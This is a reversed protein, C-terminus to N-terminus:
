PTKNPFVAKEIRTIRALLGPLRQLAASARMAERHPRAPYGSVTAGPAIDGIVGAQAGVRAGSGITVHGQVGAQGGIVAGDEVVTSGSIGVQSVIIVHKGVRCNHGIQVLNDIKTGQGIVTDGISGRDITTNAGIEVDDDIVCGGVHLIKRHGGDMWAYGFGDAGLRAGSHVICRAGIRVGAYLTVQAHLVSGAGVTCGPGVAVHSGIRVDDGLSCGEGVLAYAGISVRNGLRVGPELVATPNISAECEPERYLEPLLQALAVHADRVVIRAIHAPVEASLSESILLAGAKTAHVYSLYRRGAVLSLDHPGATDLPAVGRVQVEPDGHLEGGTIRSVQTLSFSPM